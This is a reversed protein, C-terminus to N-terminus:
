RRKFFTSAFTTVVSPAIRLRAMSPPIAYSEIQGNFPFPPIAFPAM